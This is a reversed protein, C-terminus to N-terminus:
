YLSLDNGTQYSFAISLLTTLQRPENKLLLWDFFPGHVISNRYSSIYRHSGLM